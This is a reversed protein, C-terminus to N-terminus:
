LLSKFGMTRISGGMARDNKKEGDDTQITADEGAFTKYIHNYIDIPTWGRYSSTVSSFDHTGAVFDEVSIGFEDVIKTRNKYLIKRATQQLLNAMKTQETGNYGWLQNALVDDINKTIIRNNKSFIVSAKDYQSRYYLQNAVARYFCANDNYVDQVVFTDSPLTNNLFHQYNM